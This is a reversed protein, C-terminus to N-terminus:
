LEPRPSIRWVAFPLDSPDLRIQQLKGQWIFTTDRMLDQATVSGSDPLKWEWLPIEITAEQVHLPDLSVAILIMDGGAPLRKGYLVVQDNHAPYFRLGLHSQM